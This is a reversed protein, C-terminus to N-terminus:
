FEDKLPVLCIVISIEASLLDKYSLMLDFSFTVSLPSLISMAIRPSRKSNLTTLLDIQM